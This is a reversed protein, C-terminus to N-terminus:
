HKRTVRTTGEQQIGERSININSKWKTPDLLSNRLNVTDTKEM